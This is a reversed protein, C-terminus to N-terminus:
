ESRLSSNWIYGDGLRRVEEVRPVADEAVGAALMGERYTQLSEEPSILRSQHKQKSEIFTELPKYTPSDKYAAQMQRKAEEWTVVSDNSDTLQYINFLGVFVTAIILLTFPASKFYPTDFHAKLGTKNSHGKEDMHTLGGSIIESYKQADKSLSPKRNMSCERIAGSTPM